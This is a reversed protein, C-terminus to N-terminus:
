FEFNWGFTLLYLTDSREFGRSPTNDWRWNVQATAVFNKWLSVRLGQETTIYLGRLNELGPYGEHSHFLVVGDRIPWTLKLAWRAAIYRNDMGRRFDEDFFALGGEVYVDLKQFPDDKFDGPLVLQYGPGASLATRLNLDQFTDEELFASAYGFLRQTFFLDYKVGGRTNRATLGNQNDAYNWAAKLTLRQKESRAEFEGNFSATRTQTNGDAISGGFNLSGKYTVAKKEPPNIATISELPVTQAGEVGPSTLVVKGGEGEGARARLTSGNALVFAHENETKLSAVQEWKLKVVDGVGFLAKVQLEGGSMSLVDGVVLSGNKLRVHDFGTKLDPAAQEPAGSAGEAEAPPTREAQGFLAAAALIV